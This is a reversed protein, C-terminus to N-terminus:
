NGLAGMKNVIRVHVSVGKKEVTEQARERYIKIGALHIYMNLSLNVVFLDFVENKM